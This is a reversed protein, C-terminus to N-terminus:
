KSAEGKMNYAHEERVKDIISTIRDKTINEYIFYLKDCFTSSKESSFRLTMGTGYRGSYSCIYLLSNRRSIYGRCTATRANKLIAGEKALRIAIERYEELTIYGCRTGSNLVQFDSM